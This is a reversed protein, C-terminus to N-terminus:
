EMSGRLVDMARYLYGEDAVGTGELEKRAVEEVIGSLTDIAEDTADDGLVTMLKHGYLTRTRELLLRTDETQLIDYRRRALLHEFCSDVLLILERVVADGVKENTNQASEYAHHEM